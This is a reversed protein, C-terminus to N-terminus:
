DVHDHGGALDGRAAEIRLKEEYIRDAQTEGRALIAQYDAVDVAAPGANPQLRDLVPAAGPGLLRVISLLAHRRPEREPDRGFAAELEALARARESAPADGLISAAAARVDPHRDDRLFAVVDAVAGGPSSRLPVGALITARLEPDAERRLAGLLLPLADSGPDAARAGAIGALAALAGARLSPPADAAAAIEALRRAVQPPAGAAAGGLMLLASERAALSAGPDEAVGLLAGAVAPSGALAPENLIADALVAIVGPELSPDRLRALLALAREEDVGLWARLAVEAATVVEFDGAAVAASLAGIAADLSAAALTRGAAVAPAEPGRAGGRPGAGDATPRGRAAASGGNGGALSPFRRGAPEGAWGGGEDAAAPAVAGPPAGRSAGSGAAGVVLVGVALGAGFLTASAACAALFRRDRLRLGIGALVTRQPPPSTPM